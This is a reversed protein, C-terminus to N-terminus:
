IPNTGIQICKGETRNLFSLIVKGRIGECRISLGLLNLCPRKFQLCRLLSRSIMAWSRLPIGLGGSTTTQVQWALHSQITQMNGVFIQAARNQSLLPTWSWKGLATQGKRRARQWSREPSQLHFTATKHPQNRIELLSQAEFKDTTRLSERKGTM